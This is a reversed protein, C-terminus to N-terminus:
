LTITELDDPVHITGSFRTAAEASYNERRTALTVDETHYLVLHKVGLRAATMAADLATSHNKEYPRFRDRDRYLCFAESLLWDADKVWEHSAETLPEDGPVAVRQGDPLLVTFGFQPTTSVPSTSDFATLEIEGATVTEGHALTKFIVDNDFHSTIKNSMTMMCMARLNTIVTENGMVTLTGNYKGNHMMPVIRRIVWIIGLIHDTHSHTVFVHHIDEVRVGARRLQTLVGNGGGGDVLLSTGGVRLLFCTNYCRSCMANGTGLIKLEGNM